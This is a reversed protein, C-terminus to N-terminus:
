SRSFTVRNWNLYIIFFIVNHLVSNILIIIWYVKKYRKQSVVTKERKYDQEKSFAWYPVLKYLKRLELCFFGRTNCLLDFPNKKGDNRKM